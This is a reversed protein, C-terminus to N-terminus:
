QGPALDIELDISADDGPEAEQLVESEVPPPPVVVAPVPDNRREGLQQLVRVRAGRQPAPTAALRALEEHPIVYENSTCGGALPLFAALTVVSVCAGRRHTLTTLPHIRLMRAERESETGARLARDARAPSRRRGPTAGRRRVWHP